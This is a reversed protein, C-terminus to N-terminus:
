VKQSFNLILIKFKQFSSGKSIQFKFFKRKLERPVLWKGIEVNRMERDVDGDVYRQKKMERDRKKKREKSWM